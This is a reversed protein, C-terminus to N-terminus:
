RHGRRSLTYMDVLRGNEFRLSQRLRSRGFDYIWEEVQVEVEQYYNQGYNFSNSPFQNFNRSGVNGGVINGRREYHTSVDYPEGCKEYVDDKYDGIDVLFRGCRFAYSTQSISLILIIFLIRLSHSVGNRGFNSKIM